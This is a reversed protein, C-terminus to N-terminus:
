DNEIEGDIRLEEETIIRFNKDFFQKKRQCEEELLMSFVGNGSMRTGNFEGNYIYGYGCSPSRAKLIAGEIVDNSQAVAELAEKLCIRAGNDFFETVDEGNKNIVRFSGDENVIQESPVRPIPLGGATEPCVLVYSHSRAFKVVNKNYNNGGNYKCNYGFLCKSIILM